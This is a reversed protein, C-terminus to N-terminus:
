GSGIVCRFGVNPYGKDPVRHFRLCPLTLIPECNYAGGVVISEDGIDTELFSSTWEYVNGCMDEASFPRAGNKRDFVSKPKGSKRGVVSCADPDFENGWPFLRGDCGRAAAEWEEAAPLRGGTWRCYYDADEWSVDVVPACPNLGLLKVSSGDPHFGKPKSRSPNQELFYRYQDNTVPWRGILFSKLFVSDPTQSHALMGKLVRDTCGSERMVRRLEDETIGIDYEGEDVRCFWPFCGSDRVMVVPVAWDPRHEHSYGASVSGDDSVSRVPENSVQSAVHNVVKRSWDMAWCHPQQWAALASLVSKECVSSISDMVPSQMAVAAHLGGYKIVAEGAHISDCASFVAAFVGSKELWGALESGSLLEGAGGESSSELVLCSEGDVIICHGAFFFVDYRGRLENYLEARVAKKGSLVKCEFLGESILGEVARAARLTDFTALSKEKYVGTRTDISIIHKPSAVVALVRLPPRWPPSKLLGEKRVLRTVSVRGLSTVFREKESDFMLEWPLCRLKEYGLDLIIEVQSSKDLVDRYLSMTNEDSAVLGDFLMTGIERAPKNFSMWKDLNDKVYKYKELISDIRSDFDQSRDVKKTVGDSHIGIRDKEITFHLTSM